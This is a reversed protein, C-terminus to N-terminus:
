RSLCVRADRMASPHLPVLCSQGGGQTPEGCECRSCGPHANAFKVSGTTEAQILKVCGCDLAQTETETQTTSMVCNMTPLNCRSNNVICASYVICLYLRGRRSRSSALSSQSQNDCHSRQVQQRAVSASSGEMRDLLGFM